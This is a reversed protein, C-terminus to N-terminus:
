YNKIKQDGADSVELSRIADYIENLSKKASGSAVAHEPATLFVEACDKAELGVEKECLNNATDDVQMWEYRLGGTKLLVGPWKRSNRSM